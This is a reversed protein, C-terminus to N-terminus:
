KKSIMTAAIITVIAAALIMSVTYNNEVTMQQFGVHGFLIVLSLFYCNNYFMAFGSAEGEASKDRKLLAAATKDVKLLPKKEDKVEM